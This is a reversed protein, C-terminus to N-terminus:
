FSGRILLGGPLIAVHDTAGGRPWLAYALTGVLAGGALAYGTVALQTSRERAEQARNAMACRPDTAGLCLVHGALQRDREAAKSSANAAVTFVIGTALGSAALMSGGVIWGPLPGADSRPSSPPLPALDLRVDHQSGPAAEILHHSSGYGERQAELMHPGPEVFVPGQLEDGDLPRGDLLVRAGPLSPRASIRAVRRQAEALYRRTRSLRDLPTGPPAHTVSFHLLFAAERHKGLRLEVEGLNGAVDYARQRAWSLRYAAEADLWRQERFAQNGQQFLLLAQPDDCPPAPAALSPRAVALLLALAPLCASRGTPSM